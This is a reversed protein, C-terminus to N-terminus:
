NCSCYVSSIQDNWLDGVYNTNGFTESDGGFNAHLYGTLACGNSVQVSSIKDNWADGVYPQKTGSDFIFSYGQYNAHEYVTCGAYVNAAFMFFMPFVLYKIKM